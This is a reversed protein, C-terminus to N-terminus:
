LALAAKLLDLTVPKKLFQAGAAICVPKSRMESRSCGFVIMSCNNDKCIGTVTVMFRKLNITPDDLDVFIIKYPDCVCKKAKFCDKLFRIASDELYAEDCRLGAQDELLNVIEKM